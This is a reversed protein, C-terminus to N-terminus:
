RCFEGTKRPRGQGLKRRKCECLPDSPKPTTGKISTVPITKMMVKFAVLLWLNEQTSLNASSEALRALSRSFRGPSPGARCGAQGM